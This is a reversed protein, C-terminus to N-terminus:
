LPPLDSFTLQRHPGAPNAAVEGARRIMMKAAAELWAHEAGTLEAHRGEAKRATPGGKRTTLEGVKKLVDEHIGWKLSAARRKNKGNGNSELITSLSYCMHPLPIKGQWHGQYQWHMAEVEHSVYFSTAPEPFRGYKTHGVAHATVRLCEAVGVASAIGPTPARDIVDAREFELRFVNPDRELDSVVHWSDIFPQVAARAESESAFHEKMTFTAATGAIEVAFAVEEHKLPPAQDFDCHPGVVVSYHLAVVHLDNV